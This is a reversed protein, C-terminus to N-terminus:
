VNQGISIWTKEKVKFWIEMVLSFDRYLCSFNLFHQTDIAYAPKYKSRREKFFETFIEFETYIFMHSYCMKMVKGFSEHNLNKGHSKWAQFHGNLFNWLKELNEMVTRVRHIVADKNQGAPFLSRGRPWGPASWGAAPTRWCRRRTTQSCAEPGSGAGCPGRARWPGLTPAGCSTCPGPSPTSVVVPRSPCRPPAGLPRYGAEQSQDTTSKWFILRRPM